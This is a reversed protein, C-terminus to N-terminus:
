MDADAYVILGQNSGWVLVTGQSAISATSISWSDVTVAGATVSTMSVNVPSYPTTTSTGVGIMNWSTTNFTISPAVRMTTPHSVRGRTDGNSTYTIWMWDKITGSVNTNATAYYYRQCLQLETTYHKYEYPTPVNGPEIQVGTWQMTSGVTTLVNGSLALSNAGTYNGNTWTNSSAPAYISGNWLAFGLEIGVGNGGGWTGTTSGQVPISVYTWTNASPINYTFSLSQDFTPNNRIFGSYVGANSSRTWFSLTANRAWTQGWGLDRAFYGEIKQSLFLYDGSNLTSPVATTTWGYYSFFGTPSSISGQNLGTYGKSATNTTTNWVWRDIYYAATGTSVAVNAGGSRQDIKFDGNIVRNRNGLSLVTNFVSGDPFGVNGAYINGQVGIGGVVQLAGTTRSTAATNAAITIPTRVGAQTATWTGQAANYTYSTNNLVYTQGDTPSTPFAM